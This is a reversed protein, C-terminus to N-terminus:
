QASCRGRACMATIQANLASFTDLEAVRPLVPRSGNSTAVTNCLQRHKLNREAAETAVAAAAAKYSASGMYASFLRPFDSPTRPQMTM